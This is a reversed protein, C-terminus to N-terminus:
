RLDPRRSSASAEDREGARSSRLSFRRDTRNPGRRSCVGKADAKGHRAFGYSGAPSDMRLDLDGEPEGKSNRWSGHSRADREIGGRGFSRRNRDADKRGFGELRRETEDPRVGGIRDPPADPLRLERGIRRELDRPLGPGGAAGRSGAEASAEATGIPTGGASATLAGEADRPAFSRRDRRAKRASARGTGPSGDPLVTRSGKKGRERFALKGNGRGAGSTALPSEGASQVAEASTLGSPV